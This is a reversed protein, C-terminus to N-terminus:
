KCIAEINSTNMDTTHYTTAKYKDALKKIQKHALRNQRTIIYLPTDAFTIRITKLLRIIVFNKPTTILNYLIIKQPKTTNQKANRIQETISQQRIDSVYYIQIDHGNPQPPIHQNTFIITHQPLPLKYKSVERPLKNPTRLRSIIYLASHYSIRPRVLNIASNIIDIIFTQHTQPPLHQHLTTFYPIDPQRKQQCDKIFKKIIYIAHRRYVPNSPHMNTLVPTPQGNPHDSIMPPVAAVRNAYIITTTIGANLALHLFISDKLACHHGYSVKEPYKHSFTTYPRFAQHMDPHGLAINDQTMKKWQAKHHHFYPQTIREAWTPLHAEIVTLDYHIPLQQAFTQIDAGHGIITRVNHTALFNTFETIVATYPRSHTLNDSTIGHINHTVFKQITGQPQITTIYHTKAQLKGSPTIEAIVAGLEVLGSQHNPNHVRGDAATNGEVDM